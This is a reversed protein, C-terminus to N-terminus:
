RYWEPSETWFPEVPINRNQTTRFRRRHSLFVRIPESAKEREVATEMEMEKEMALEPVM